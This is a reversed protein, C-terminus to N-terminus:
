CVSLQMSLILAFSTKHFATELCMYLEMTLMLSFSNLIHISLCDLADQILHPLFTKLLTVCKHKVAPSAQAM